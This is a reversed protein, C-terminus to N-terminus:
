ASKSAVPMTEDAGVEDLAIGLQECDVTLDIEVKYDRSVRVKSFMRSLIMKKTERDCSDYMDSWSRINQFQECLSAKMQESDRLSETIRESYRQEILAEKPLDNIRAFLNKIVGDIVRDLKRVTYGTQGDCLHQHRTKNYCIYRTRPTITVGGDKRTYRKGNTTVILRAGCHGCFV